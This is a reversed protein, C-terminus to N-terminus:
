KHIFEESEKKNNVLNEIINSDVIEYSIKYKKGISLTELVKIESYTIEKSPNFFIYSMLSLGIGQQFNFSFNYTTKGTLDIEKSDTINFLKFKLVAEIKKTVDGNVNMIGPGTFEIRDNTSDYIGLNISPILDIQQDVEGVENNLNNCNIIIIVFLLLLIIKNKM